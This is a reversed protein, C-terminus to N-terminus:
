ELGLHKPFKEPLNARVWRPHFLRVACDLQEESRGSLEATKELCAEYLSKLRDAEPGKPTQVFADFAKLLEELEPKM